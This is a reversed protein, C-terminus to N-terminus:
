ESYVVICDIVDCAKGGFAPASTFYPQMEEEISDNIPCVLQVNNRDCWSDVLEIEEDTLGSPDANVLMPLAWAPIKEVIKDM